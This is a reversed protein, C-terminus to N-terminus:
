VVPLIREKHEEIKWGGEKVFLSLSFRDGLVPVRERIGGGHM